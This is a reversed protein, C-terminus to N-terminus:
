DDHRGKMARSIKVCFRSRNAPSQRENASSTKKPFPARQRKAQTASRPLYYKSWVESLGSPTSATSVLKIDASAGDMELSKAVVVERILMDSVKQPFADGFFQEMCRTRSRPRQMQERQAAVRGRNMHSRFLQELARRSQRTSSRQDEQSLLADPPPIVTTDSLAVPRSVPSAEQGATVVEGPLPFVRPANGFEPLRIFPDGRYRQLFSRMGVQSWTPLAPLISGLPRSQMPFSPFPHAPRSRNLQVQTGFLGSSTSLDWVQARHNREQEMWSPSYNDDFRVFDIQTEANNEVGQSSQPMSYFGARELTMEEKLKKVALKWVANYISKARSVAGERKRVWSLIRQEHCSNHKIYCWKETSDVTGFEDENVMRRLTDLTMFGELCIRSYDGVWEYLRLGKAKCTKEKESLRKLMLLHEYTEKNFGAREHGWQVWRWKEDSVHASRDNRHALIAIRADREKYRFLDMWRQIDAPTIDIISSPDMLTIQSHPIQAAPEM